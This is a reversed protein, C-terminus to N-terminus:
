TKKSTPRKPKQQSTRDTNWKGEQKREVEIAKAAGLTDEGGSANQNKHNGDQDVLKGWRQRKPAKVRLEVASHAFICKNRKRMPCYTGKSLDWHNCLRTRFKPDEACRVLLADSRNAGIMEGKRVWQEDSRNWGRCQFASAASSGHWVVLQGIACSEKVEELLSKDIPKTAESLALADDQKEIVPTLEPVEVDAVIVFPEDVPEEEIVESAQRLLALDKRPICSPINYKQMLPDLGRYM